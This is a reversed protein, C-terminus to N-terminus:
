LVCTILRRNARIGNSILRGRTRGYATRESPLPLRPNVRWRNFDSPFDLRTNCLKKKKQLAPSRKGRARRRRAREYDRPGILKAPSSPLPAPLDSPNCIASREDRPPARPGRVILGVLCYFSRHLSVFRSSRQSENAKHPNKKRPFFNIFNGWYGCLAENKKADAELPASPWPSQRPALGRSGLRPVFSRNIRSAPSTKKCKGRATSSTGSAPLRPRADRVPVSAVPDARGVCV